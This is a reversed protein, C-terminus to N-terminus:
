IKSSTYGEKPTRDENYIGWHKEPEEENDSGKWPEDFMEFLFACIQNEALWKWMDKIYRCQNEDNAASAAMQENARTSWGYETFIVQKDPYCSKIERYDEQSFALAGEVNVRHWLPYSHVSILDLHKALKKLRPWEPAGENYTVLQSCGKKLKLAQEVLRDETMLDSGWDPTNENGISVAFIEDAYEKALEILMDLQANNRAINQALQENTYTVEWPCDPNNYEAKPDIGVMAKLPLNKERIIQLAKRAHENPDYMRIYEFGNEVIIDLDEAIQEKTPFIEKVPSQGRRYGSYCVGRGYKMM